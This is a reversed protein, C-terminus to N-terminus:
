KSSKVSEFYGLGYRLAIFRNTLCQEKLFNINNTLSFDNMSVKQYFFNCMTKLDHLSRGLCAVAFGTPPFAHEDM